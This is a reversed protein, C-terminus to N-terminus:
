KFTTYNNVERRFIIRDIDWTETGNETITIDWRRGTPVNEFSPIHVYIKEESGSM